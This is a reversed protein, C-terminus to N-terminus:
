RSLTVELVSSSKEFCRLPYFNYEFCYFLLEVLHVAACYLLELKNSAYLLEFYYLRLALPIM